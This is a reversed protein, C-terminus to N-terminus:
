QEVETEIWDTIWCKFTKKSPWSEAIAESTTVGPWTEDNDSFLAVRWRVKVKKPAMRLNRPNCCFASTMRTSGIIQHQIVMYGEDSAGIFHAPVWRGEEMDFEVQEGARAKEIDFEM